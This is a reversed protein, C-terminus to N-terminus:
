APHIAILDAQEALRLSPISALVALVQARSVATGGPLILWYVTSYGDAQSMLMLASIYFRVDPQPWLTDHCGGEAALHNEVPSSPLITTMNNQVSRGMNRDEFGVDDCGQSLSLRKGLTCM